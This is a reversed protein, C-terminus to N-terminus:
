NPASWLLSATPFVGVGLVAIPIACPTVQLATFSSSVAAVSDTLADHANLFFVPADIQVANTMVQQVVQSIDGKQLRKLSDEQVAGLCGDLGTRSASQRIAPPLSELLECTCPALYLRLVTTDATGQISYYLKRISDIDFLSASVNCSAFLLM